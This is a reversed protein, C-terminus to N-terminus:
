CYSPRRWIRTYSLNPNKVGGQMQCAGSRQKRGFRIGTRPHGPQPGACRIRGLFSGLTGPIRGKGAIAVLVMCDSLCLGVKRTSLGASIEQGKSLAQGRYPVFAERSSLGHKRRSYSLDCTRKKKSLPRIQPVHWLHPYFPIWGLGWKAAEWEGQGRPEEGDDGLGRCQNMGKAWL